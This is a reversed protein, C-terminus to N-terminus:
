GGITITHSISRVQSGFTGTTVLGTYIGAQRNADTQSAVSPITLTYAPQTINGDADVINNVIGIAELDRYVGIIVSRVRARFTENYPLNYSGALLQALANLLRIRLVIYIGYAVSTATGDLNVNVRYDNLTNGVATYYNVNKAELATRQAATTTVTSVGILTKLVTNNVFGTESNLNSGFIISLAAAGAGTTGATLTDGVWTYRSFIREGAISAADSSDITGAYFLDLIFERQSEVYDLVSAVEDADTFFDTPIDPIVLGAWDDNEERRAQLTALTDDTKILYVRSVGFTQNFISRLIHYENDTETFALGEVDSISTLLTFNDTIAASKTAVAVPSFVRATAVFDTITITTQLYSTIPIAM